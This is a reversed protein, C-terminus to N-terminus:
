YVEMFVRRTPKVQKHLMRREWSQVDGRAAPEVHLYQELADSTLSKALEQLIGLEMGAIGCIYILTRESSVLPLLAERETILRRQVYMPGHGDPQPQRSLATLYTFHEHQEQARLFFDHYLLDTEYAAGMILAVRSPFGAEILDLLMGRFPAIGTGTAFFVYDHAAADAPLLFRKGNPGSVAVDDGEHLDCLFNSAVGLFLRHTEWHEDITRKVTTSVVKGGGDEGRTPAAISYLRVKHPQGHEDMGPPIVGFSQGARFSGELATGSVDIEVHRVFGAAKRSTCVENKVVRGIVPETPRVLHMQVTPLAIDSGPSGTAKPTASGSRATTVSTSM